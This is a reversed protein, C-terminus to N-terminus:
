AALFEGMAEVVRAATDPPLEPYIPLALVRACAREALPFDGPKHGLSAFCPQLHLPKPYYISHGIGRETLFASLEDRRDVAIVFQNYTHRGPREVPLTVYRPVLGADAFLKRYLAANAQRKATWDDLHALKVLLVAAQLAQLRFNGGVLVHDYRGRDGHHRLMRARDALEKDNTTVMGGEGFAGLNKTPFFSFCGFAGFSGARGTRAPRATAGEPSLPHAKDDSVRPKGEKASAASSLRGPSPEQPGEARLDRPDSRSKDKKPGVFGAHEAGIAQAADEVVPIGRADAIRMLATMDACQGFLHVPMIARTRPTIVAKLKAPDINYTDPDVDVFVPKAGLRHICGASAFFSFTSTIVEDGRGIGLAMLAVLLADTGSSVGVAHACGCYDAVRAELEAVKPGLIFQQSEVVERIAEFVEDRITDFQAQLDLFKVPAPQKASM